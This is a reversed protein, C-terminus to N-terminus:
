IMDPSDSKEALVRIAFMLIHKCTLMVATVLWLLKMRCVFCVCCQVLIGSLALLLVVSLTCLAFLGPLKATFISFYTKGATKKHVRVVIDSTSYALLCLTWPLIQIWVSSGHNPLSSYWVPDRRMMKRRWKTILYFHSRPAFYTALM